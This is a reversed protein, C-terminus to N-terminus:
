CKLRSKKNAPEESFYIPKLDNLRLTSLIGRKCFSSDKLGCGTDIAIRKPSKAIPDLIIDMHNDNHEDSVIHDPYMHDTIVHGHVLYDCHCNEIKEYGLPPIQWLIQHRGKETRTDGLGAHTLQFTLENAKPQDLFCTRTDSIPLTVLSFLPMERFFRCLNLIQKPYKIHKRLHKVTPGGGNYQVWVSDNRSEILHRYYPMPGWCPDDAEIKDLKNLFCDIYDQKNLSNDVSYVSHLSVHPSMTCYLLDLLFEILFEEHNGQQFLIYKGKYKTLGGNGIKTLGKLFGFVDGSGRDILDGPLILIDDKEMFDLLRYLDNINGHIDSSVFVSREKGNIWKDFFLHQSKNIGFTTITITENKM